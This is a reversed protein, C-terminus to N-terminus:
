AFPDFDGLNTAKGGAHKQSASPKAASPVLPQIVNPAKASSIQLGGLTGNANYNAQPPSTVRAAASSSSPPPPPPLLATAGFMGGNAAGVRTAGLKNPTQSAASPTTRLRAALPQVAAAQSATVAPRSAPTPASSCLGFSGFEDGGGHAGDQETFDIEVPVASGATAALSGAAGFSPADWEWGSSSATQQALGMSALPNPLEAAARQQQQRRPSAGGAGMVLSEFQKSGVSGGGHGVDEGSGNNEATGNGGARVAISSDAASSRDMKELFGLQEREVRDELKKIAQVFRKFQEVKLRSNMAQAWLAPVIEKAVANRDVYELGMEEYMDLMALIVSHEQTKTRQLLPIISEAIAQEGLAKMMGHLCKLACLKRSLVGAKTYLHQVRPLVQEKLDKHDMSDAITPVVELAKDQVQPVSSALAAYVVPLVDARFVTSRTKRQLLAMHDLVVVTTQPPDGIGFIEKLGPLATAAFSEVTLKEVIYFVNPLTYPLLSHDSTQGLLAPLVKRRLVRESFKPLVRLLGRMFAVKQDAPQEALAELYRLAAVLVDDFYASRQFQDLSMRHAPNAALLALVVPRLQEPLRGLAGSRGLGDLERRYTDTNNQCDLPSRGENYAATALCGLSFLDGACSCQGELFAEPAMFDLSRQTHESMQFDHQHQRSHGSGGSANHSSASQPQAFGLGGLKWDGKADLLISAPVLNGHVIRADDHLFQLGKSVQLLGKQIEFDDLDFVDGDVKYGGGSSWRDTASHQRYNPNVLDDLSALVQETVFMLSSRTEELPEMVQLVSPHRLRTLQSAENKLMDVILGQERATLLQRNIGREFYRKDFVWVTVTQGTKPRAAKYLSWLGSQGFAAHSLNFEYDRSIKSQISSAASSAFDRLKSIYSDM